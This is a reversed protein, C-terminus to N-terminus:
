NEDMAESAINRGRAKLQVEKRVRVEELIELEILRDFTEEVEDVEMGVFEPIQFPSVGSYLAMLVQNERESLDIDGANREEGQRLLSGLITVQRAPGSFYTQVSTGEVTHEVELATRKEDMVTRESEEVSGIDDLEVEVFTGSQTAMNLEDEGLKLRGKEWEADTVVGGEVAPHKTLIVQKDLLARYLAHEFGGDDNAAVLYVDTGAQIRVYNSVAAIVQNVDSRGSIGGVNSLAITRKGENGVLVVRKNSLIIRGQTWDADQLQRGDKVVQLFKGQSDAIKHEGESM